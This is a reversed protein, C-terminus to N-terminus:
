IALVAAVIVVLILLGVLWWLLADSVTTPALNPPRALPPGPNGPQTSM